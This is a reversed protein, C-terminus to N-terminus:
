GWEALWAEFMLVAWLRGEHNARGSLHEEWRARVPEPNLLGERRLRDGALLDGAWDRLDTRLWDAVPVAFGLKPREVLEPPVYRHLVARLIRKGRGRRILMELPLRASFAVIDPDVLPVRAELSAAMSARDLKVLIDDPHYALLDALMMRRTVGLPAQESEPPLQFPDRASSGDGPSGAGALLAAPDEWCSTLERYLAEASGAGAVLSAKDLLDSLPRHTWDDPLLPGFGRLAADAMRSRGTARIVRALSRRLAPPVWQLARGHPGAQCDRRDRGFVEDGGDGSLAVTVHERTLRALLSTPIGSSDAFPEDYIMPLRPVVALADEPTVVLETHETGLHAAVRRAHPAEDLFRDRVGISFTRVTRGGAAQMLAAVTSSDIGGSLFAGLPVDAVMRARVAGALRTDLEEVAEEFSGRFPDAAGAELVARASWYRRPASLGDAEEAPRPSFDGPRDGRVRLMCGAPLKYLGEYIARPAPVCAFRFFLALAEQDISASFAPFARIAKLESAFLFSGAQWGYYLPKIGLRDRCLHLTKERGDWLAFAFMGSARELARSLGWAEIAALLVETDSEGHFQAGSRLLDRKLDRYNYVEGNYVLIYRGSASPMPQHGERTLDIVSLRRHGLALGAVEDCWLGHDDPGRHVLATSMRRAQDLLESSTRTAAPTWAGCIGCM